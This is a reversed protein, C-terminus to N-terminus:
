FDVTIVWFLIMSSAHVPMESEGLSTTISTPIANAHIAQAGSQLHGWRATFYFSGGAGGWWSPQTHLGTVERPVKQFRAGSGSRPHRIGAHTALIPDLDHRHKVTHTGDPHKRGASRRCGQTMHFAKRLVRFEAVMISNLCLM